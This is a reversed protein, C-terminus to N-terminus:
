CGTEKSSIIAFESIMARSFEHLIPRAGYPSRTRSIKLLASLGINEYVSATRRGHSIHGRLLFNKFIPRNDIEGTIHVDSFDYSTLKIQSWLM